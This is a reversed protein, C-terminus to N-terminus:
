QKIIKKMMWTHDQLQVRLLYSGSRYDRLSIQVRNQRTPMSMVRAGKMDYVEILRMQEESEITLDGSSPIPFVSLNVSEVAISEKVSLTICSDSSAFSLIPLQISDNFLKARNLSSIMANINQGIVTNTDPTKGVGVAIEITKRENPQLSFSPISGFLRRNGQPNQLLSGGPTLETWGTLAVPDGTFM